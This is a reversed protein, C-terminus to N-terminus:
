LERVITTINASPTYTFALIQFTEFYIQMKNLEIHVIYKLFFLVQEYLCTLQDFSGVYYISLTGCGKYYSRREEGERGGGEFDPVWLDPLM